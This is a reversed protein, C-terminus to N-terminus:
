ILSDDRLNIGNQFASTSTARTKLDPTTFQFPSPGPGQNPPRPSSLDLEEEMHTFSYPNNSNPGASREPQKHWAMFNRRVGQRAYAIFTLDYTFMGLQQVSETVNFEKFYGRYIVGQFFM